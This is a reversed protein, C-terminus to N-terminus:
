DYLPTRAVLTSAHMIIVIASALDPISQTLVAASTADVSTNDTMNFANTNYQLCHHSRANIIHVVGNEEFNRM